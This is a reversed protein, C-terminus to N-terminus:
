RTLRREAEAWDNPSDLPCTEEPPIPLATISRGYLSGYQLVTQRRFAYVTGDRIYVPGVDQRRTVADWQQGVVQWGDIACQFIAHHTAPLRVLSVVSDAGTDQLLRIAKQIHLPTRLPQTPQLLVVIQEPPGPIAELAHKVVDIMSAEDTALHAPRDLWRFSAGACDSWPVAAGPEVDSSVVVQSTVAHAVRVARELPSQGALLRFNKSPISKSGSRAPILALVSDNM